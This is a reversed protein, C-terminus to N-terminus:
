IDLIEAMKLFYSPDENDELAWCASLISEVFSWERLRSKEINLLSSFQDIRQNIIHHVNSLNLLDPVPNRVFAGVEFAPEGWVGKPDIAVWGEEFSLINEHHLDGHLLVAKQSTKLLRAALSRAKQLPTHPINPSSDLGSLWEHLTPFSADGSSSSAKHLSSMVDVAKEVAKLDDHPFYSKLSIGPLVRGILLAGKEVDVKHLSVCGHGQFAKLARAEREIGQRDFGVKLVLPKITSFYVANYSPNDWASLEGLEWQEALEHILHPLHDLWTRGDSGYLSIMKKNFSNM